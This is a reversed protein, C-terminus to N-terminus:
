KENKKEQRFTILFSAGESQNEAQIKWNNKECINKVMFLGMGTSDDSIFPDFIYELKDKEIGGGNDNVLILYEDEKNEVKVTIKPHATERKLFINKANILLALIIQSFENKNGFIKLSKSVRSSYQIDCYDFTANVLAYAEDIAEKVIFLESNSNPNYFNQFTSVTKSMFKIIQANNHLVESYEEKSINEDLEDKAMLYNNISGLESLPQKWQHAIHMMLEGLEAQKSKQLLLKQAIKYEQLMQEVKKELETRYSNLELHNMIRIHFEKSSFPKVIYDIAGLEFGKKIDEFNPNDTLFIIPINRTKDNQKLLKCLDFGSIKPIMMDLLVLDIKEYHVAKMVDSLEVTLLIDFYEDLGQIIKM